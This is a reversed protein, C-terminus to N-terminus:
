IIEFNGTSQSQNEPFEDEFGISNTCLSIKSSSRRIVDPKKADIKRLRKFALFAIALISASVGVLVVCAVRPSIRNGTMETLKTVDAEVVCIYEGKQDNLCNKGDSCKTQQDPCLKYTIECRNGM